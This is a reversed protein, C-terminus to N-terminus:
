TREPIERGESSALILDPTRRITLAGALDDPVIPAGGPGRPKDDDLLEAALADMDITQVMLDQYMHSAALRLRLRQMASANASEISAAYTKAHEPLDPDVGMPLLDAIKPTLEFSETAIVYGIPTDVRHIGAADLRAALTRRAHLEREHLMGASCDLLLGARRMAIVTEAAAANDGPTTTAQTRVIEAIAAAHHMIQGIPELDM